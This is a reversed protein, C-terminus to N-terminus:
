ARSTTRTGTGSAPTVRSTSVSASRTLRRLMAAAAAKIATRIRVYTGCRCVNYSMVEDIDANSPDPNAAILALARM